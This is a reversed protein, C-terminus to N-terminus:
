FPLRQQAGFQHVKAENLKAATHSLSQIRPKLEREIFEDVEEPSAAIYVGDGSAGCIVVGDDDRLSKIALRVARSTSENDLGTFGHNALYTTLDANSIAKARGVHSGELVTRVAQKLREDESYPTKDKWNDSM